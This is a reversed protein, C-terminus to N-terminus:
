HGARQRDKIAGMPFILMLVNLLLSDGIWVILVAEMPVFV